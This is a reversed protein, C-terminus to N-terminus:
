GSWYEQRSFEMSLPAQYDITWPTASDSVVSRSACVCLSPFYLCVYTKISDFKSIHKERVTEAKQTTNLFVKGFELNKM